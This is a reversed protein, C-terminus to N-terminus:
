ISKPDLREYTSPAKPKLCRIWGRRLTDHEIGKLTVDGQDALLKKMQQRLKYKTSMQDIM